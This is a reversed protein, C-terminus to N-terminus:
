PWWILHQHYLTSYSMTRGKCFDAIHSPALYLADWLFSNAMSSLLDLFGLIFYILVSIFNFLNNGPLCLFNAQTRTCLGSSLSKTLERQIFFRDNERRHGSCHRGSIYPSGLPWVKHQHKAQTVAQVEWVFGVRCTGDTEYIFNLSTMCDPVQVRGSRVWGSGSGWVRAKPDETFQALCRSLDGPRAFPDSDGHSPDLQHYIFSMSPAWSALVWLNWHRPHTRFDLTLVPLTSLRKRVILNMNM